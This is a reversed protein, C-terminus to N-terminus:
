PTRERAQVASLAQDITELLPEVPIWPDKRLSMAVTELATRLSAQAQEAERQYINFGRATEDHAQEAQARAQEAATLQARVERHKEVWQTSLRRWEDREREAQQRAAREATLQEEAGNRRNRWEDRVAEAEQRAQTESALLARLSAIEEASGTAQHEDVSQVRAPDSENEAVRNWHRDIRLCAGCTVLSVDTVTPATSHTGCATSQDEGLLHTKM